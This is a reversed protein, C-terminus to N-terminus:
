RRTKACMRCRARTCKVLSRGIGRGRGRLTRTEGTTVDQVSEGAFIDRGPKPMGVAAALSTHESAGADAGTDANADRVVVAARGGPEGGITVPPDSRQPTTRRLPIVPRSPPFTLMCLAALHPIPCVDIHIAACFPSLFDRLLVCLLDVRRVSFLGLVQTV